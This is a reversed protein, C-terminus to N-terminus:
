AEGRQGRHRLDGRRAARAMAIAALGLGGAGSHILVTEGKRVRGLVNLAYHATLYVSPISAAEADSLHAPVRHLRDADLTSRRPAPQRAGHRVRPRRARANRRGRRRKRGRRLIRARAREGADTPEAGKPLLGTAAMVDRFNLSAADVRVRAEGARAAAQACEQWYLADIGRAGDKRLVFGREAPLRTRPRPIALRHRRRTQPGPAAASGQRRSGASRRGCRDGDDCRRRRCARALAAGDLDILHFRIEPCEIALTRAAGILASQVLDSGDLPDAPGASRAHRTAIWVEPATRGTSRLRAVLIQGFAVLRAAEQTIADVSPWDDDTPSISRCRCLRDGVDAEGWIWIARPRLDARSATHGKATLADALAAAHRGGQASLVLWQQSIVDSASTRAPAEIFTEEIYGPAEDRRASAAM